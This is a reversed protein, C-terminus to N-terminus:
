AFREGIAALLFEFGKRRLRRDASMAVIAPL